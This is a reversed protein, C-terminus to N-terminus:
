LAAWCALCPLLWQMAEELTAHPKFGARLRHQSKTALASTPMPTARICNICFSWFASEPTCELHLTCPIFARVTMTAPVVPSHQWRGVLHTSSFYALQPRLGSPTTSFYSYLHRSATGECVNWTKRKKLAGFLQLLSWHWFADSPGLSEILQKRHDDAALMKAHPEQSLFMKAPHFLLLSVSVTIIQLTRLDHIWGIFAEWWKLPENKPIMWDVVQSHQYICIFAAVPGCPSWWPIVLVDCPSRWPIVLSGQEKVRWCAATDTVLSEGRRQPMVQLWSAGTRDLETSLRKLPNAAINLPPQSLLPAEAPLLKVSSVKRLKEYCPIKGSLTQACPEELLPPTYVMKEEECRRMRVDEWRWKRVDECRRMKVDECGRMYFMKEEEYRWM